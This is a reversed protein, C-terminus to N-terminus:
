GVRTETRYSVDVSADPIGRRRRDPHPHNLLLRGFWQQNRNDDDSKRSNRCSILVLTEPSAEPPL